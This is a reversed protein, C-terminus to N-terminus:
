MVEKNVIDKVFQKDNYLKITKIQEMNLIHLQYYKDYYTYTNGCVNLGKVGLKKTLRKGETTIIVIKNVGETYGIVM